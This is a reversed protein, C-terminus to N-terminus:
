IEGHINDAEHQGPCYFLRAHCKGMVRGRTEKNQQEGASVPQVNVGGGMGDSRLSEAEREMYFCWCSYGVYRMGCAAEQDCSWRIGTGM